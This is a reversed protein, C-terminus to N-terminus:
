RRSHKLPRSVARAVFWDIFSWVMGLIGVLVVLGAAFLLWITIYLGIGLHMCVWVGGFCLLTLFAFGMLSRINDSIKM